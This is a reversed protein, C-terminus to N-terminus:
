KLKKKFTGKISYVYQSMAYVFSNQQVPRGDKDSQCTQKRLSHWSAMNGFYALTSNESFDILM